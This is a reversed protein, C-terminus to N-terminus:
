FNLTKGERLCTAVWPKFVWDVRFNLRCSTPSLNLLSPDMGKAFPLPSFFLCFASQKGTKWNVSTPTTRVMYGRNSYLILCMWLQFSNKKCLKEQSGTQHLSCKKSSNWQCKNSSCIKFTKNEPNEKLLKGRFMQCEHKNLDKRLKLYLFIFHYAHTFFFLLIVSLSVMLVFTLVVTQPVYINLSSM